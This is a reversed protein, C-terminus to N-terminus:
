SRFGRVFDVLVRRRTEDGVEDSRDIDEGASDDLVLRIVYADLGLFGTAGKVDVVPDASCGAGAYPDRNPRLLDLDPALVGTLGVVADRPCNVFDGVLSALRDIM